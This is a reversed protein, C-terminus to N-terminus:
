FILVLNKFMKQAMITAYNTVGIAETITCNIHRSFIDLFWMGNSKLCESFLFFYRFRQFVKRPVLLPCNRIDRPYRIGTTPQKCSRTTHQKNITKKVDSIIILYNGFYIYKNM